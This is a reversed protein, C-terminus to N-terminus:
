ILMVRCHKTWSPGEGCLPRFIANALHRRKRRAVVTASEASNPATYSRPFEASDEARYPKALGLNM